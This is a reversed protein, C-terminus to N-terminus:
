WKIYHLLNNFESGKYLRKFELKLYGDIGYSKKLRFIGLFYM